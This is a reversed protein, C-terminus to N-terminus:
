APVSTAGVTDPGFRAIEADLDLRRVIAEHEEAGWTDRPTLWMVEFENGDPDRAYLSKNPGHDSSGELAGAAELKARVVPSYWM